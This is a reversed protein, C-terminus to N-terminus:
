SLGLLVLSALLRGIGEFDWKQSQHLQSVSSLLLVSGLILAKGHSLSSYIYPFTVFAM